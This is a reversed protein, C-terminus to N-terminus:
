LNPRVQNVYTAKDIGVHHLFTKFVGTSVPDRTPLIFARQDPGTWKQHGGKGGSPDVMHKFHKLAKELERRTPVNFTAPLSQLRDAIMGHGVFRLPVDSPRFDYPLPGTLLSEIPLGIDHVTAKPNGTAMQTALTRWTTALHGVRWDRYGPPSLDLSADVVHQLADLSVVRRAFVVRVADSHFWRWASWNALAEELWDPTERLADYVRQKYSLHRPRLGSVEMWSLAAEVRSHFLEHAYTLGFALSAADSQSGAIHQSRCDDLLSLALADLKRADFYIGWTDETWVHYPQFWAIADFGHLKVDGRVEDVRHRFDTDDLQVDNLAEMLNAGETDAAMVVLTEDPLATGKELQPRGSHNLRPKLLANPLRRQVAWRLEPYSAPGADPSWTVLGIRDRGFPISLLGAYSGDRSTPWGSDAIAAMAAREIRKPNLSRPTLFTAASPLHPLLREATLAPRQHFDEMALFADGVIKGWETQEEGGFFEESKQKKRDIHTDFKAVKAMHETHVERAVARAMDPLWVSPSSPPNIGVLVLLDRHDPLRWVGHCHVQARAFHNKWDKTHRLVTWAAEELQGRLSDSDLLIATTMATSRTRHLAVWSSGTGVFEVIDPDDIRVKASFAGAAVTWAFSAPIWSPLRTLKSTTSM